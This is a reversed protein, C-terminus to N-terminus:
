WKEQAWNVTPLNSLYNCRSAFTTWCHNLWTLAGRRPSILIVRSVRGLSYTRQTRMVAKRSLSIKMSRCLLSRINFIRNYYSVNCRTSSYCPTARFLSPAICLSSCRRTEVFVLTKSKFTNNPFSWRPVIKM